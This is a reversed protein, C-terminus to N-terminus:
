NISLSSQICEEVKRALIQVANDDWFFSTHSGPVDYIDVGGQAVTSWGLDPQAEFDIPQVLARCITITGAYPRPKYAVAAHRHAM